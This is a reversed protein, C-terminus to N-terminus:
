DLIGEIEEIKMGNYRADQENLMKIKSEADWDDDVFDVTKWDIENVKTPKPYDSVVEISYDALLSAIYRHHGDIILEDSSVHISMFKLGHQMKKFIRTIIPLSLKEHLPKLKSEKEELKSLILEKTINM